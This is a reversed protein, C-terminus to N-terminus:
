LFLVTRVRWPPPTLHCGNRADRVNSQRLVVSERNGNHGGFRWERMLAFMRVLDIPAATANKYNRSAYHEAAILREDPTRAFAGLSALRCGYVSKQRLTRKTPYDSSIM